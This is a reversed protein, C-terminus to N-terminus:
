KMTAGSKRYCQKWLGLEPLDTSPHAIHTQTVFLHSRDAASIILERIFTKYNVALVPSLPQSNLLGSQSLAPSLSETSTLFLMSDKIWHQYKNWTVVVCTWKHFNTSVLVSHKQSQTGYIHFWGIRPPLDRIVPVSCACLQTRTRIGQISHLLVACVNILYKL